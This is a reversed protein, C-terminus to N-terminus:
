IKHAVHFASVFSLHLRDGRHHHLIKRLQAFLNIRTETTLAIYPSLTSLLLLYDDLSYVVEYISSDYSLHNFYGSDIIIQSFKLFDAQHNIRSEYRAYVPISPALAQYTNNVLQYTEEDVQPPTNWLLILSGKPKLAAASKAYAIAPDIWHWSTAALVADFYNSKLEWEEFALNQIEVLPYNACNQKALEAAENNPELSLLSFGLKAFDVTAIAPGCGLELIQAHPPLQALEITRDIIESPYRPRVRNYADAVSGHWTKREDLNKGAYEKAVETWSKQDGSQDGHITTTDTMKAKPSSLNQLDTM